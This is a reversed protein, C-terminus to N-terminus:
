NNILPNLQENAKIVRLWEDFNFFYFHTTGEVTYDVLNLARLRALTESVRNQNHKTSKCIAKVSTNDPDDILHRIVKEALPTTIARYCQIVKRCDNYTSPMRISNQVEPKEFINL